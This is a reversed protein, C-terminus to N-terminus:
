QWQPICFLMCKNLCILYTYIYQPLESLYKKNFFILELM